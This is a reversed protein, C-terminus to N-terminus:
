TVKHDRSPPVAKLVEHLPAFEIGVSKEEFPM